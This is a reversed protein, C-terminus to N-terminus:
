LNHNEIYEEVAICIFNPLTRSVKQAAEAFREKQPQTCTMSFQIKREAKVTKKSPKKSQGSPVPAPQTMREEALDDENLSFDLGKSVGFTPNKEEAKIQNKNRM